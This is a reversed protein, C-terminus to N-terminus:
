IGVGDMDITISKNKKCIHMRRESGEGISKTFIGDDNLSSIYNHIKKREYPSYYPLVIDKGSKVLEIKKSIFSFLKDDKKSLYDNVELHIILSTEGTKSLIVNKLIVRIDDLTKGMYGILLGSDVTKLKIYFIKESEQLVELSEIDILLKKFFDLTIEKIIDLEM